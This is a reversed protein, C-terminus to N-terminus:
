LYIFHCLSLGRNRDGSLLESRIPSGTLVAKKRPLSKVTEPFNCCIKKSFPLALKNALGPSMDSEHCIVPIRCLKAAVTVPLGVFGGKSFVINPKFSKIIKKAQFIGHIVRFPDTFNQFSHYRRLKGTSISHYDLGADPILKSEIGDKSGIYLIEFGANKLYPVLALNPTVHGATGGGTLIIKKDAM